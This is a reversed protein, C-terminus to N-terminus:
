RNEWGAAVAHGLTELDVEAHSQRLYVTLDAARRAHADDLAWPAAGLARGVRDLVEQAAREVIARVRFARIRADELSDPHRDVAAAAGEFTHRCAALAADVAGLHALAHPGARGEGARRYLPEAVGSAAGFWCAAVGIAGHWFGARGTYFDPDGVASARAGDFSVAGTDSDHMGVPPWSNPEPRVTSRDLVVAFLRSVGDARATVLAHTCRHAGSCWQKRGSLTWSGDALRRAEVAPAVEAAWVGWLQGSSVPDAGAEALIAAADYHAELLRGVVTDARTWDTLATWREGTAGSGPLPLNGTDAVITRVAASVRSGIDHAM